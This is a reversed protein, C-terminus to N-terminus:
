RRVALSTPWSILLAAPSSRELNGMSFALNRLIQYIIAISMVAMIPYPHDRWALVTLIGTRDRGWCLFAGRFAVCM